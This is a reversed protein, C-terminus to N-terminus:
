RLGLLLVFYGPLRAHHLAARRHVDDATLDLDLEVRSTASRNSPRVASTFLSM